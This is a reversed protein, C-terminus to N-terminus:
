PLREYILPTDYPTLRQGDKELLEMVELRDKSLTEILTFRMGNGFDNPHNVYFKNGKLHYTAPKFRPSLKLEEYKFSLDSNDNRVVEKEWKEPIVISSLRIKDDSIPEVFFFLPKIELEKDPYQYYSEELIYYGKVDDPLGEIRDTFMRTVHKAYPHIQKGEAREMDVQRQNDFDGCLVEKFYEFATM